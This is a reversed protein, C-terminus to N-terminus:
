PSLWDKRSATAASVGYLSFAMARESAALMAPFFPLRKGCRHRHLRKQPLMGNEFGRCVIFPCTWCIGFPYVFHFGVEDDVVVDFVAHAAGIIRLLGSIDRPSPRLL